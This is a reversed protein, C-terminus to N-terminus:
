VQSQCEAKATKDYAKDCLAKNHTAKAIETVCENLPSPFTFAGDTIQMRQCISADKRVIAVHGICNNRRGKDTIGDCASLDGKLGAYQTICYYDRMEADSIRDCLSLDLKSETVNEICKQKMEEEGRVDPKIMDCVSMDEAAMGVEMLCQNQWYDLTSTLTKCLSADKKAIAVDVICDDKDTSKEIRNCLSVDGKAAAVGAICPNKYSPNEMDDCISVDKKAKAVWSECTYQAGVDKEGLRGCIREDMKCEAIIAVCGGRLEDLTLTDCIVPDGKALAVASICAAREFPNKKKECDGVSLGAAEPPPRCRESQGAVSDGGGTPGLGGLLDLGGGTANAGTASGGGGSFPNSCCLCGCFLSIFVVTAVLTHQM